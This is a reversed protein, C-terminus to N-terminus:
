SVRRKNVLFFLFLLSLLAIGLIVSELLAIKKMTKDIAHLKKPLAKETKENKLNNWTSGYLHKAYLTPLGNRPFFYSAPFLINTHQKEDINEEIGHTLAILTRHLVRQAKVYDDNESFQTTVASWRDKVSKITAQMIPHNPSTGIIANGSLILREDIKEHAVELGAYFDYKHHFPTFSRFCKVDHDIYLGGEKLLIEYRWIDSKEGWNDSALFEKELHHFTFQDLQRVEMNSLPPPRKRDTWFVFSWDPHLAAFSRVNEISTLPFPKPGIWILHVVKPITAEKRYPVDLNRTYVSKYIELQKLDSESYPSLEQPPIGQLTEFTETHSFLPAACLFLTMLTILLANM